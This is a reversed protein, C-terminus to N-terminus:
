LCSVLQCENMRWSGQYTQVSNKNEVMIHLKYLSITNVLFRNHIKLFSSCTQLLTQHTTCIYLIQWILLLNLQCHHLVESSEEFDSHYFAWFSSYIAQWQYEDRFVFLCNHCPYFLPHSSSMGLCWRPAYFWSWELCSGTCCHMSHLPRLPQSYLTGLVLAQEVVVRSSCTLAEKHRGMAGM